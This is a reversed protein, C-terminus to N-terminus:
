ASISMLAVIFVIGGAIALMIPLLTPEKKTRDTTSTFNMGYGSTICGGHTAHDTMEEVVQQRATNYIVTTHGDIEMEQRMVGGNPNHEAGLLHLMEHLYVVYAYSVDVGSSVYFLNQTTCAGGVAASGLILGEIGLSYPVEAGVVCAANTPDLAQLTNAYNNTYVNSYGGGHQWQLDVTALDIFTDWIVYLPKGNIRISALLGSAVMANDMARATTYGLVGRCVYGLQGDYASNQIVMELASAYESYNATDLDTTGSVQGAVHANTCQFFCLAAFVLM